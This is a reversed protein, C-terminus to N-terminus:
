AALVVFKVYLAAVTSALFFSDFRDLFGGHGPLISGSDKVGSQRKLKSEWLDGLTAAISILIVLSVTQLTTFGVFFRLSAASIIAVTLLAGGVTGEWTKKPSIKSLPTKGIFSGVLYALTDNLWITGFLFVFIPWAGQKFFGQFQQYLWFAAVVGGTIYALGALAWMIDKWKKRDSFILSTPVAIGLSILLYQAIEAYSTDDVLLGEKAHLLFCSGIAIMGNRFFSSMKQYSTSSLKMLQNYEVWAGFHVLLLLSFFGWVGSFIGLLMIAVFIVATGARLKFTKLDFAM